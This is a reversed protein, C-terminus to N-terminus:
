RRMESCELQMASLVESQEEKQKALQQEFQVQQLRLQQTLTEETGQKQLELQEMEM